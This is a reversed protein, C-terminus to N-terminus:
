PCTGSVEYYKLLSFFEDETSIEKENCGESPVVIVHPISFLPIAASTELFAEEAYRLGDSFEAPLSLAATSCAQDYTDDALGAINTGIWQNAESPIQWSQYFRCDLDPMSQWAIFTLDFQRGFVVGEPGPAYLEEAPLSTVAVEIGCQGLSDQVIGALSKQLASTDTLLTVSFSTGTPVGLVERAQLPTEPDLDHDGWGVSELLILASSPDFELGAGEPLRSESMPVFSPWLDTVTFSGANLMAERDLCMAIARRTDADGFYDPRDGYLPNFYEDYSAPMIGLVLQEWSGTPTVIVKYTDDAQLAAVTQRDNELGLSADLVDCAGSELLAVAAAKDHGIAQVTIEDLIPLGEALRYYNPNRTLLMSDESRSTIAFPGYSLPLTTFQSLGTITSWDSSGDAAHSPLPTWFFEGPESTTFGPKGVWTVTQEDAATYSATRMEAWKLGPADTLNAVHYSFVSDAATVPVGDSWTLGDTLHFNLVMQDMQLPSEGDWTMTCSSDRCGSPRVTVGAKLIVPEGHADVVTQGREVTIPQLRLGGNEENPIDSLIGDGENFLEDQILALIASRAASNQGSYLFLDDPIEATCITLDKIPEPTPSATSTVAASSETISASPTETSLSSPTHCASLTWILLFSLISLRRSLRM